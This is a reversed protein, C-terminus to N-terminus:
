WAYDMKSVKRVRDKVSKAYEKSGKEYYGTSYGSDKEQEAKNMYDVYREYDSLIRNMHNAADSMKVERGRPSEGIKIEGYKTKEGSALADKIHNSLADIADNVMKDLPLAAAKNNLIEEYRKQNAKKFDKDSKFAIAGSKADVRNKIDERSSPTGAVLNIVIARDALKSARVVSSIGSAGYGSYKKNGGVASDPMDSARLNYKSTKKGSASSAATRQQDYEISLFQKARTLALVGPALTRQFSKDSSYPNEKENDVIYFVVYDRNKQYLKYAQAPDVDVLMSDEIKDLKVKSFGYFASALDKAKGFAGAQQMNLLNRLKSSKFAENIVSENCLSFLEKAIKKAKSSKHGYAKVTDLADEMEMGHLEGMDGGREDLLDNLINEAESENIVSEEIYEALDEDCWGFDCDALVAELDKRKGQMTIEPHGSPGSKVTDIIEVKNKGLWKLFNRDDPAMADMTVTAEFLAEVSEETESVTSEFQLSDIRINMAAMEMPKTGDEYDVTAFMNGLEIIKFRGPFRVNEGYVTEGKKIAKQAKKLEPHLGENVEVSEFAPVLKSDGYVDVMYWKKDSEDYLYIWEAGGDTSALKIYKDIASVKGTSPGRGDGYFNMSDITKDLGSNDGKAIVQKVIKANKYGRKIVPLIYEPYSDYHMYVSEINGKKDIIGFQGRTGENLAETEQQTNVFESFSEMVLKRMTPQEENIKIQNLIRTGFKSLSIGEESVNFYKSNRKMWRKSDTSLESVITDFEQQTIKGDKIAELIKNRIRASKGATIAPHNETYRRKLTVTSRENLEYELSENFQKAFKKWMTPKGFADITDQMTQHDGDFYEDALKRGWKSNLFTVAGDASFGYEQTLVDFADTFMIETGEEDHQMNITGFFGYATNVDDMDFRLARAENFQNEEM